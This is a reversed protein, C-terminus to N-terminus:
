DLATNVTLGTATVDADVAKNAYSGFGLVTVAAPALISDRSAHALLFCYDFRLGAADVSVPNGSALATANIRARRIRTSGSVHRVCSSGGATLDDIILDVTGGNNYVGGVAGDCLGVKGRVSGNTVYFARGQDGDVELAEIYIVSAANTVNVTAKFDGSDPATTSNKFKGFGLISCTVPGNAGDAGDSFLAGDAAGTYNVEAGAEFYWTGDDFFLDRSSTYTGKRVYILDDATADEKAAQPSSYPLDMRGPEASVTGNIEDVWLTRGTLIAGAEGGSPPAVLTWTTLDSGLSYKDGGDLVKVEMGELRRAAPIANRASIDAVIMPGGKIHNVETVGFNGLPNLPSAIDIAGQAVLACATVLTIVFARLRIRPKM